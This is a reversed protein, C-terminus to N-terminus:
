DNNKTKITAIRNKLRRNYDGDNRRGKQFAIKGAPNYTLINLNNPNEVGPQAWLSEADAKIDRKM